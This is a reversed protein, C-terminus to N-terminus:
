GIVSHLFQAQFWRPYKFILTSIQENKTWGNFFHKNSGEELKDSYWPVYKKGFAEPHEEQSTEAGELVFPERLKAWLM